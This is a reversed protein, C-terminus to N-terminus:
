YLRLVSESLKFLSAFAEIHKQTFSVIGELYKQEPYYVFVFLRKIDGHQYVCNVKISNDKNAAKNIILAKANQIEKLYEVVKHCVICYTVLAEDEYEWPERGNKYYHHHVHLTSSKDYCLQCTYDDRDLISNKKKQWRPDQLKESYTLTNM